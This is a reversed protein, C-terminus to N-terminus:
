TTSYCYEDLKAILKEKQSEDIFSAKFSNKALKYFDEKELKLAKQVALYNEAAYGGFYAPDDSNVTVFLGKEMMVKLPHSEMRDIVRLKLNSLPCLTLPINRKVLEKVLDEDDLSHNGHDIRSVKLIDLAEWVYEAPGEEGAHAVTLFGAKRAADYVDKFKSPPNGIEASDFGVAVIWDKYPLAEELTKMASESTLDRLFCMILKASIGLKEEAKAVAKHIGNIVTEFSIGRSTHAQPDFFIEAHLINQSHARELYAMTMDFFDQEQILVKTGEYYIDLFDQLNSFNYAAKLEEISKHKLRINNRTAIEFMLEPEFTGEIHLHLEAKPIEKVFSEFSLGKM